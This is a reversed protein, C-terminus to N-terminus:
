KKHKEARRQARNPKSSNRLGNDTVKGYDVHGPTGVAGPTVFIPSNPAGKLAALLQAQFAAEAEGMNGIHVPTDAEFKGM